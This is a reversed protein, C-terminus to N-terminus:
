LKILEIKQFRLLNEDFDPRKIHNTSLYLGDERVFFLNPNYTYDSFRTEGIVKLNADLIMIALTKNGSHLIDMYNDKLDLTTKPFVFRYYVNRYKDYILNGYSALECQLKARQDLEMDKDVVIKIDDIYRSKALYSKIEQRTLSVKYVSDSEYFSYIFDDGDFCCSVTLGGMSYRVDQPAVTPLYNLPMATITNATTDIIAGVPSNRVFDDGLTFNVRQPIIIQNGVFYMQNYIATQIDFNTLQNSTSMKQYNIEQRKVGASDTLYIILNDAAIYIHDFDVISYSRVSGVGNAGEKDFQIKKMLKGLLLDYVLIEDGNNDFTLYEKGDVEFIWVRFKPLRTDTDIPFELFSDSAQLACIDTVKSQKCGALSLLITLLILCGLKNMKM